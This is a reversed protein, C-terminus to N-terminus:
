APPPGHAVLPSTVYTAGHYIPSSGIAGEQTASLGPMSERSAVKDSAATVSIARPGIYREIFAYSLPRILAPMARPPKM